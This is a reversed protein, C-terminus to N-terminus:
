VAHKDLASKVGARLAALNSSGVARGADGLKEWVPYTLLEILQKQTADTPDSCTKTRPEKAGTADFDWNEMALWIRERFFHIPNVGYGTALEVIRKYSEDGIYHKLLKLMDETYTPYMRSDLKNDYYPIHKRVVAISKDTPVMGPSQTPLVQGDMQEIMKAAREHPSPFPKDTM